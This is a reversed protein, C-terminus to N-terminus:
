RPDKHPTDLDDADAEECFADLGQDWEGGGFSTITVSIGQCTRIRTRVALDSARGRMAQGGVTTMVSSASQRRAPRSGSVQNADAEAQEARLTAVDNIGLEVANVRAAGKTAGLNADAGYSGLLAALACVLIFARM